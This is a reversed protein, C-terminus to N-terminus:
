KIAVMYQDWSIYHITDAAVFQLAEIRPNIAQYSALSSIKSEMVQRDIELQDAKVKLDKFAFGKISLDNAILFHGLLALIVGLCLFKNVRSLFVSKTIVANQTM